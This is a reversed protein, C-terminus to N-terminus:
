EENQKRNRQESRRQNREKLGATFNELEAQGWKQAESETEFGGQSKSVVTKRSTMRRTIEVTWGSADQLVRYDYKKGTAM